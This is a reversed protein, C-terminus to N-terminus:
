TEEARMVRCRWIVPSGVYYFEICVGPQYVIVDGNIEKVFEPDIEFQLEITGAQNTPGIEWNKTTPDCWAIHRRDPKRTEMNFGFSFVFGQSTEFLKM